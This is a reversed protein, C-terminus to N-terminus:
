ANCRALFDSSALPTINRPACCGAAPGPTHKRGPISSGSWPSKSHLPPSWLLILGRIVPGSITSRTRPRALRLFSQPAPRLSFRENAQWFTNGGAGCAVPQRVRAFRGRGAPHKRSFPSRRQWAPRHEKVYASCCARQSGPQGCHRPATWGPGYPEARPPDFSVQRRMSAPLEETFRM